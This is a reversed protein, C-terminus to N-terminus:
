KRRERQHFGIRQISKRPATALERIADFVSKFQSDYKRELDDLRRSLDKNASIIERLKAFTRMIEINVRIARPSNLVSSLMAVGHETFAYPPRRLGMKVQFNSTVFQSRWNKMEAKNLRFMFDDPFRSINRKVAQNLVKTKVGYLEALDLDFMVKKGRIFYIKREITKM